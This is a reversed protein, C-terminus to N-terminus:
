DWALTGGNQLNLTQAVLAQTDVPQDFKFSAEDNGDALGLVCAIGFVDYAIGSPVRGGEKISTESITLAQSFGQGNQGLPTTFLRFSSNALVTSAALLQTSWITLEGFRYVNKPQQFGVPPPSGMGLKEM